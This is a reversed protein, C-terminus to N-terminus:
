EAVIVNSTRVGTMSSMGFVDSIHLVSGPLDYSTIRTEREKM